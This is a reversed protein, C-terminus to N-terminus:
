WKCGRMCIDEKKQFEKWASTIESSNEFKYEQVSYTTQQDSATCISEHAADEAAKTDTDTFQTVTHSDADKGTMEAIPVIGTPIEEPAPKVEANLNLENHEHDNGHLCKATTDTENCIEHEKTLSTDSLNLTNENYCMHISNQETGTIPDSLALQVTPSGLEECPIDSIDCKGDSCEPEVM